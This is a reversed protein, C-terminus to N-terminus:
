LFFEMLYYRLAHLGMKECNAITELSALLAQTSFLSFYIYAHHDHDSLERKKYLRGQNSVVTESLKFKCKDQLKTGVGETSYNVVYKVIYKKWLAVIDSTINM